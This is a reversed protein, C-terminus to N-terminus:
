DDIEFLSMMINNKLFETTKNFYPIKLVCKDSENLRCWYIYMYGELLIMLQQMEIQHNRKTRCHDYRANYTKHSKEMRM